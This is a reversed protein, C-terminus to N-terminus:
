GLVEMLIVRNDLVSLGDVLMERGWFPTPLSPRLRVNLTAATWHLKAKALLGTWIRNSSKNPIV